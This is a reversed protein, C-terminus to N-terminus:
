DILLDDVGVELLRSGLLGEVLRFSCLDDRDLVYGIVLVVFTQFLRVLHTVSCQLAFTEVMELLPPHVNLQLRLNPLKRGLACIAPVRRINIRNGRWPVRFRFEM